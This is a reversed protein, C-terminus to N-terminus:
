SLSSHLIHWRSSNSESVIGVYRAADSICDDLLLGGFTGCTSAQWKRQGEVLVPKRPRPSSSLALSLVTFTHWCSQICLIWTSYVCTCIYIYICCWLLAALFSVSYPLHELVALGSWLLWVPLWLCLMVSRVCSRLAWFRQQVACRLVPSTHTHHVSPSCICAKCVWWVPLASRSPKLTLPHTAWAPPRALSAHMVLQLQTQIIRSDAEALEGSCCAVCCM